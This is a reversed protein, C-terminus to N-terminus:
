KNQKREIEQEQAEVPEDKGAALAQSAPCTKRGTVLKLYIFFLDCILLGNM